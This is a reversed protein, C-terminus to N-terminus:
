VDERVENCGGIDRGEGGNPVDRPVVNISGEAAKGM